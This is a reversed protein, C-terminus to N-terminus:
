EDPRQVCNLYIVSRNENNWTYEEDLNIALDLSYLKFPFRVSHLKELINEWFFM